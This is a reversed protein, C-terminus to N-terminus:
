PEVRLGAAEEVAEVVTATEGLAEVSGKEARLDTKWGRIWVMAGSKM